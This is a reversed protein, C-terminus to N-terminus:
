PASAFIWQDGLTGISGASTISSGDMLWGELSGDTHRWILDDAGDGDLDAISALQWELDRSPLSGMSVLDAGDFTWTSADGLSSRLLLDDRGDADFDGVGGLQWGAGIEGLNISQRLFCRVGVSSGCTWPPSGDVLLVLRLKEAATHVLWDDTGDGDFDGSRIQAAASFGFQHDIVDTVAAGNLLWTSVSDDLENRMSLDSRGDGNYDGVSGLVWDAGPDLVGIGSGTVYIAFVGTTENRWLVDPIGDGNFDGSTADGGPSTVLYQRDLIELGAMSWVRVVGTDTNQLILDAGDLNADPSPTPDPIPTPEADPDEVFRVAESPESLPGISRVRREISVGAVTVVISDGFSGHVTAQADSVYAYSQMAENNFSVLVLYERVPGPAPDWAFTASEVGILTTTAVAPM